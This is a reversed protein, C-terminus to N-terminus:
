DYKSIQERLYKNHDVVKEIDHFVLELEERSVTQVDKVKGIAEMIQESNSELDM